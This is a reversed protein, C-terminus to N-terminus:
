SQPRETLRALEERHETLLQRANDRVRAAEASSAKDAPDHAHRHADDICAAFAEAITTVAQLDIQKRRTEQWAQYMVVGVACAFVFAALVAVTILVPHAATRVTLALVGAPVGNAAASGATILWRRVGAPWRHSMGIGSPALHVTPPTDVPPMHCGPHQATM